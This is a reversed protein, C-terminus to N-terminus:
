AVIGSPSIAGPLRILSADYARMSCSYRVEEFVFHIRLEEM